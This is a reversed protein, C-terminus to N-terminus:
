ESVSPPPQYATFRQAFYLSALVVALGMFTLMLARQLRRRAPTHKLARHSHRRRRRGTESPRGFTEIAHSPDVSM